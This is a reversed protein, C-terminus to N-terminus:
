FTIRYESPTKAQRFRIKSRSSTCKEILCAIELILMRKEFERFPAQLSCAQLASVLQAPRWATAAGKADLDSTDVCVPYRAALEAPSGRFDLGSSSHAPSSDEGERGRLGSRQQFEFRLGAFTFRKYAARQYERNECHSFKKARRHKSSTAFFSFHFHFCGDVATLIKSRCLCGATRARQHLAGARAGHAAARPGGRAARGRPSPRPQLCSPSYRLIQCKALKSRKRSIGPRAAAEKCVSQPM